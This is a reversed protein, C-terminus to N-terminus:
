RVRLTKVAEAGDRFVIRIRMTGPRDLAIRALYRGSSGDAVALRRWPGGDFSGLVRVAGEDGTPVDGHFTVLSHAPVVGPGALRVTPAHTPVIPADAPAAPAGAGVHLVPLIPHSRPYNGLALAAVSIAAALAVGGGVTPGRRSAGGSASGFFRRREGRTWRAYDRERWGM